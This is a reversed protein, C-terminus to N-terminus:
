RRACARAGLREAIRHISERATRARQRGLAVGARDDAAIRGLLWGDLELEYRRWAVFEKEV